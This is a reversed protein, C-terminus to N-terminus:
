DITLEVARGSALSMPVNIIRQNRSGRWKALLTRQSQQFPGDVLIDTLDLLKKVAHDYDSRIMLEEFTYGSFVWTDLGNERATAALDASEDAQIFPEGGSITLGDTLPNSLMEQAVEDVTIEIGGNTDLSHPNHCGDCRRECGQTFVVFRLGPGDVISDQLFGAIRM